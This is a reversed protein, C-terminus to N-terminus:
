HPKLKEISDILKNVDSKYLGASSFNNVEIIKCGDDTIAIDLTFAQSPQWDAICEKAFSLVKEDIFEAIIVQNRMKYLSGTVVMGDVVFLRYESDINKKKSIIIEEDKNTENLIKAEISMILDDKRFLGGTFLKNDKLPRSFVVDWDSPIDINNLKNIISDSNLMKDGWGDIWKSYTFNENSFSGPTINKHLMMRVFRYSGIGIIDTRNDLHIIKDTGTLYFEDKGKHIDLLKHEIGKEILLQKLTEIGIEYNMNNQIIWM